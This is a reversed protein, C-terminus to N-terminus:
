KNLYEVLWYVDSSVNCKYGYDSVFLFYVDIKIVLIKLFPLCGMDM